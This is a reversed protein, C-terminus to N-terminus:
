GPATFPHLCISWCSDSLYFSLYILSQFCIELEKNYKGSVLYQKAWFWHIIIEIQSHQHTEESRLLKSIILSQLSKIYKFPHEKFLQVVICLQESIFAAWHNKWWLLTLFYGFHIQNRIFFGTWFILYFKQILPRKFNGHM